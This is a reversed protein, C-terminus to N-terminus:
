PTEINESPDHIGNEKLLGQFRGEKSNHLENNDYNYIM